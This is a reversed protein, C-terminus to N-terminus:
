KEEVQLKLFVKGDEGVPATAKYIKFKGDASTEGTATATTEVWNILDISKLAKVNVVGEADVNVSFQLTANGSADTSHKFNVNADYSTARSADLGFTFKELNTIGDNHPTATPKANDGTLKNDDAWKAFGTLEIATKINLVLMDNPYSYSMDGSKASVSVNPIDVTKGTSANWLKFTLAEGDTNVYITLNALTKGEFDIVTSKARIENGAFVGVVSNAPVPKGDIQVDAMITMQVNPYVVPEGFNDSTTIESDDESGSSSAVNLVLMDNPYSYSADGSKASVSVNPIDVTEGTSANWLKFTLAEGDTNVNITLNALTKGEFDIVASKARLENGVFVGVVSNAPVPKGDIQVDAMITMSVNPYVVPEGFNDSASRAMTRMLKFTAVQAEPEDFTITTDATAKVWYGAGPKMEKLSNLVDPTSPAFNGSANIIREIKGDALATALVTRISGATAPTYGINNWGAKLTIANSALDLTTGTLTISSASNMKIWFGSTNDFATLTNLADPWSPNFSKGNGQVLAVNNIVDGLVTRINLSDLGVNFSVQNWGANLTLPLDIINNAFVIQYPSDMSGLVEGSTASIKCDTTANEVTNDAPNWIKFTIEEGNTSVNLTLNVFAKGNFSVVTTKGRLENGVFAGVVCGENAPSGFFDVEGLITMQVNPYVVPEGFPDTSAVPKEVYTATITANKSPMKITTTSANVDAVNEVDGIWKDFVMGDQAENAVITIEDDAEYTGSGTGNEVTLTFAVAEKVSGVSVKSTTLTNKTDNIVCYYTNQLINEDVDITLTSSTAGEIAQASQTGYGGIVYWQYSLNYGSVEVSFVAQKGIYAVDISSPQTTITADTALKLVVEDTLLATNGNTIVCRFTRGNYSEQMDAITLTSDTAGDVIVWAGDVKEQWQYTLVGSYDVGVSFTATNGVFTYSNVPQETITTYRSVTLKASESYIYGGGNDIKLRYYNGDLSHDTISLSLTSATENELNSWTAGKDSSVQWQYTLNSETTAVVEFTATEGKSVVKDAIDKSIIIASDNVLLVSPTTEITTGNKSTVACKYLYRNMSSDVPFELTSSTEGEIETYTTGYDTSVYWKFTPESADHTAKLYAYGGNNITSQATHLSASTITKNISLTAESSNISVGDCVNSIVCRFKTNDLDAKCNSITYTSSTAGSINEWEGSSNLKQWQYTVEGARSTASIRFSVNKSVKFIANSPQMSIEPEIYEYAGITVYTQGTGLRTFGRADTAPVSSDASNSKGANRASSNVGVPITQVPGGYYGLVGLRPDLSSINNGSSGYIICPSDINYPSINTEPTTTAKNKWFICNGINPDRKVYLAGYETANNDYFTCNYFSSREPPSYIAGGYYASNGVFTCNKLVLSSASNFYIAGGHSEAKNNIFTCNNLRINSYEDEANCIAGGSSVASNNEFTCNAFTVVSEYVCIAGGGEYMLESLHKNNRFICNTITANGSSYFDIGGGVHRAGTCGNQVIVNDLEVNSVGRCKLVTKNSNGDLYTYNQNHIRQDKSIETGSFGGYISVYSKMLISSGNKYVGAKIWVEGGGTASAADIATQINAFANNWSSGDKYGAGNPVVYFTNVDNVSLNISKTQTSGNSNTVICYYSGQSKKQINPFELISETAGEVLVGDKYWQYTLDSGSAVVSISGNCGRNINIDSPEVEIAPKLSISVSVTDTQVIGVPNKIICYYNGITSAQINTFILTSETAGEILTGDKYWQYTLREGEASVSLSGMSYEGIEIDSPQTVIAPYTIICVKVTNTQVSGASNQVICYYLGSAERGVKSFSLTSATADKILTGDKYWQYSLELGSVSVSIYGDTNENIDVDNPQSVITPKSIRAFEYAGITPTSTSRKYGRADYTIGSITTGNGIASSGEDVAITEVYGGNNSLSLFNPDTTIINTASISGGAIDYSRDKERNAGGIVISHATVKDYSNRNYIHYINASISADNWFISNKINPHSQGINYVDLGNRFNAAGSALNNLFTCYVITPNSLEENYMAGGGAYYAYTDSTASNEYFTSNYIKPSSYYNCIAGGYKGKNGVFTCNEITPSSMGSTTTGENYIAGGFYSASNNKFTSNKISPSSYYNYIAGGGGDSDSVNNEFTCNTITPNSGINRMAGGGVADYNQYNFLKNNRFVCNTITPSSQKNYMGAGEYYNQTYGNQIVINDLIATKDIRENYFVIYKEEGDLITVNGSVRQDKSIETGAFGGYIAVNNQMSMYTGHKYTGKAVWVEAPNEQTAFNAAINIADQIDSYANAWSTGDKSGAGGPVVYYTAGSAVLATLFSTILLLYKKM